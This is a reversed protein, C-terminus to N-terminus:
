PQPSGRGRTGRRRHRPDRPSVEPTPEEALAPAGAIGPEELARPCPESAPGDRLHVLLRPDRSYAAGGSAAAGACGVFPATVIRRADKNLLM